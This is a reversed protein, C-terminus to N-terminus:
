SNGVSEQDIVATCIGAKMKDSLLSLGAAISEETPPCGPIVIDVPFLLNLGKMVFPGEFPAGSIACTGVAIVWKPYGMKKYVKRLYPVLKPTIMGSFVLVNAEIISSDNPILPNTADDIILNPDVQYALSCCASSFPFFWMKNQLKASKWSKVLNQGSFVGIQEQSQLLNTPFEVSQENMNIM